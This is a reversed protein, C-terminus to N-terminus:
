NGFSRANGRGWAEGTQLQSPRSSPALQGGGPFSGQSSKLPSFSM